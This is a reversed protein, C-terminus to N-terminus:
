RRGHRLNSCPKFIIIAFRYGTSGGPRHLRVTFWYRNRCSTGVHHATTLFTTFDRNKWNIRAFIRKSMYQRPGLGALNRTKRIDTKQSKRASVPRSSRDYSIITSRVPSSQERVRAPSRQNGAMLKAEGGIDIAPALRRRM